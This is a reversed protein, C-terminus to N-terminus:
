LHGRALVSGCSSNETHGITDAAGHSTESRHTNAYDCLNTGCQELQAIYCLSKRWASSGAMGTTLRCIAKGGWTVTLWQAPPRIQTIKAVQTVFSREVQVQLESRLQSNSDLNRAFRSCDLRLRLRLGKGSFSDGRTSTGTWPWM